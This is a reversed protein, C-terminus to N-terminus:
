LLNMSAYELIQVGNNLRRLVTLLSVSVETIIVFGALSTLFIVFLAGM